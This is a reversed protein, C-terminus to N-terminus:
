IPDAEMRRMAFFGVGFVSVRLIEWGSIFVERMWKGILLVVLLAARNSDAGNTNPKM